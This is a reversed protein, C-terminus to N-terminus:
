YNDFITSGVSSDSKPETATPPTDNDDDTTDEEEGRPNSITFLGIVGDWLVRGIVKTARMILHFLRVLVHWLFVLAMGSWIALHTLGVYTYHAAVAIGHAAMIAYPRIDSWEILYIPLYVKRM